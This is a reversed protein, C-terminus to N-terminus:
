DEAKELPKGGEGSMSLTGDKGIAWRNGDTCIEEKMVSGLTRHDQFQIVWPRTFDSSTMTIKVDMVGPRVPTYREVMRAGEAKPLHPEWQTNSGRLSATDIVLTRGEWRGLSHGMYLARNTKEPPHARGDFYIRRWSQDPFIWVMSKDGVVTEFGGSYNHFLAYPMGAPHCEAYPAFIAHGNHLERRIQKYRALPAPKLPAMNPPRFEPDEYQVQTEFGSFWGGGFAVDATWGGGQWLDRAAAVTPQGDVGPTWAAFPASPIPDPPGSAAGPQAQAPAAAALASAAALILVARLM